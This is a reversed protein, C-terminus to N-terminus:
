LKVPRRCARYRVHPVHVPNHRRARRTRDALLRGVLFFIAIAGAFGMASVVLIRAVVVGLHIPPPATPEDDEPITEQVAPDKTEIGAEEINPTGSRL